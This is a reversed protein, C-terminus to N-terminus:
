FYNSVFSQHYILYCSVLKALPRDSEQPESARPDGKSRKSAVQVNVDHTALPTKRKTAGTPTCREQSVVKADSQIIKPPIQALIAPKAKQQALKREAARLAHQRSKERNKERCSPCNKYGDINPQRCTICNRTISSTSPTDM